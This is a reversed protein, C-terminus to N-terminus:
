RYVRGDAAALLSGDPAARLDRITKIADFRDAAGAGTLGSSRIVHDQAYYAAGGVTIALPTTLSTAAWTAGQDGSRYVTAGRRAYVVLVNTPDLAAVQMDASASGAPAPLATWTVGADLSRLIPSPQPATSDPEFDVYTTNLASITISHITRTPWPSVGTAIQAWSTGANVSKFLGSDFAAFLATKDPTVAVVNANGTAVPPTISQWSFGTFDTTKYVNPGAAAFLAETNITSGAAALSRVSGALKASTRTWTQGGDVSHFVGQEASGTWTADVTRPPLPTACAFVSQLTAPDMLVCGLNAMRPGNSIAIAGGAPLALNIHELRGFVNGTTGNSVDAAAGP